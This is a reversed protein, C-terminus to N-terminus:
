RYPAPRAVFRMDNFDHLLKPDELADGKPRAVRHLCGRSAFLVHGGDREAWEWDPCAIRV